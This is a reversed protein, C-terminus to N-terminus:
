REPLPPADGNGLFGGPSYPPLPISPQRLMPAQEVREDSIQPQVLNAVSSTYFIGSPATTTTTDQVSHRPIGAPPSHNVIPPQDVEPVSPLNGRNTVALPRKTGLLPEGSPNSNMVVSTHNTTHNPVPQQPKFKKDAQSSTYSKRSTM